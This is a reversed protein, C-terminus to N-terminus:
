DLLQELRLRAIEDVQGLATSLETDRDNDLRTEMAQLISSKTHNRVAIIFPFGFKGRYANNFHAVHDLEEPALNVLGAGAQEQASADTLNGAKAERGALEPHANLLTVRQEDSGQRVVDSMAGALEDHDAFPRRKSAEEAIWPSHEYIDGFAETFATNSMHNIHDLTLKTM